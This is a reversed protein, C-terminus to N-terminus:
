LRLFKLLLFVNNADHTGIELIKKPKFDKSLSAFVVEHESSM